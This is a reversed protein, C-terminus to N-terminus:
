DYLDSVTMDEPVEKVPPGLDLAPPVVDQSPPPNVPSSMSALMSESMRDKQYEEWAYEPRRKSRVFMMGLASVLILGLISASVWIIDNDVSAIFDANDGIGDGDTDTDESPDDPFADKDNPTGDGDRDLPDYTTVCSETYDEIEGFDVMMDNNSDMEFFDFENKWAIGSLFEISYEGM